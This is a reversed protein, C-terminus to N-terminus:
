LTRWIQILGSLQERLDPDTTHAALREVIQIDMSSGVADMGLRHVHDPMVPAGAALLADVCAVHLDTTVWASITRDIPTLGNPDTLGPDAGDRLLREVVDIRGFHGATGLDTPLLLSQLAARDPEATCGTFHWPNHLDIQRGDRDVLRCREEDHHPDALVGLERAM